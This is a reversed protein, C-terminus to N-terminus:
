IKTLLLVISVLEIGCEKMLDVDVMSDMFSSVDIINNPLVRGEKLVRDRLKIGAGRYGIFAEKVKSKLWKQYEFGFTDRLVNVMDTIASSLPIYCKLSRCFFLAVEVECFTYKEMNGDYYCVCSRFRTKRSPDSVPKLAEVVTDIRDDIDNFRYGSMTRPTMFGSSFSAKSKGPGPQSSKAPEVEWMSQSSVCPLGTAKFLERAKYSALDEITQQQDLSSNEGYVWEGFNDALEVGYLRLSGKINHASPADVAGIWLQEMGESSDPERNRLAELMKKNRKLANFSQSRITINELRKLLKEEERQVNEEENGDDDDFLDIYNVDESIESDSLDDLEDLDEDGDDGYLRDWVANIQADQEEKTMEVDLFCIPLIWGCLFISEATLAM